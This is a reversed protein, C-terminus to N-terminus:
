QRAVEVLGFNKITYHLKGGMPAEGLSVDLNLSPPLSPGKVLIINSLLELRLVHGLKKIFLPILMIIEYDTTVTLIILARTLMVVFM